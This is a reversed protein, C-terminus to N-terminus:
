GLLTYRRVDLEAALLEPARAIAQKLHDTEFHADLAADETWEEVFTFACPDENSHLLEYSICGEEQRTPGILGLLLERLDDEKGPQAHLHAVVRLSM